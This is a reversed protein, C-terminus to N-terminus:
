HDYMGTQTAADSPSSSVVFVWNFGDWRIINVGGDEYILAAVDASEFKVSSVEADLVKEMLANFKKDM